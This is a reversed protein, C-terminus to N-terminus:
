SHSGNYTEYWKRCARDTDQCMISDVASAFLWGSMFSINDGVINFASDPRKSGPWWFAFRRIAEYGTENNYLLSITAHTLTALVFSIRAFFLLVGVAFHILSYQDFLPQDM